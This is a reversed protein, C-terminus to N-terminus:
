EAGRSGRGTGRGRFDGRGRRDPAPQDPHGYLDIGRATAPRYSSHRRGLRRFGAHPTVSSAVSAAAGM